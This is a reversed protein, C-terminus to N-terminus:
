MKMTCSGRLIVERVYLRAIHKVFPWRWRVHQMLDRHTWSYGNNGHRRYSILPEDILAAKGVFQNIIGIWEDHVPIDPPIPLCYKLISRRFAMTSGQYRNRWLNHLVGPHFQFTGKKFRTRATVSGNGDIIYCDSVILTLGPSASFMNMFRRVKDAWWVDDQDTLFIIEGRAEELARGFTKVVGCNREQRVVRIRADCFGNIIGVTDDLSADDVIVLEDNDNLQPLISAIQERIFTAGNYAAMCVSISPNGASLSHDKDGQASQAIDTRM